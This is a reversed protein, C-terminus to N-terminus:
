CTKREKRRKTGMKTKITNWKNQLAAVSLDTKAALNFDKGIQAWKKKGSRLSIEVTKTLLKKLTANWKFNKTM